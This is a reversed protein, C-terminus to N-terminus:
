SRLQVSLKQSDRDQTLVGDSDTGYAEGLGRHATIEKVRILDQLPDDDLPLAGASLLQPKALGEVPVALKKPDLLYARMVFHQSLKRDLFDTLSVPWLTLKKTTAAAKHLASVDKMATRYERYLAELDKPELRLRVGLKGGAWDLTPLLGSVHHLEGNKVNLWIDLAPLLMEWNGLPAPLATDDANEWAKGIADIISWHSLTFDQIKFRKGKEVLFRRLALIASTKGSNNAGVFLTTEQSLDVRVSLLKRFNSIEINDIWM